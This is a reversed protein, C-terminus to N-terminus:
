LYVFLVCSGSKLVGFVVLLPLPFSTVPVCWSVPTVPHFCRCWFTSFLSCSSVPPPPHVLCSSPFKQTGCREVLTHLPALFSVHSPVFDPQFLFEHVFFFKFFFIGTVLCPSRSLVHYAGYLVSSRFIQSPCVSLRPISSDVFDIVLGLAM